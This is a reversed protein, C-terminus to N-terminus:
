LFAPIIHLVLNVSFHGVIAIVLGKRWYCWGYFSGVVINGLLTGGIAFASGAGFSILQPLHAAAFAASAIVIIAAISASSPQECGTLTAVCWVMFTMLGLRFWVEEGVAAGITVAFGGLVGRHGYAPIEAPLYAETYQRLLLFGGGLLLAVPVTQAMDKLLIQLSVPFVNGGGGSRSRGLGLGPGFKLGFWCSPITLVTLFLLSPLLMEVFSQEPYKGGFALSFLQAALTVLFLIFM